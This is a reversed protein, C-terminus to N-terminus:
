KYYERLTKDNLIAVIGNYDEHPYEHGLMHAIKQNSEIQRSVKVATSLSEFFEAIWVFPNPLSLNKLVITTM